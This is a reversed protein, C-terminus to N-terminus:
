PRVVKAGRKKRQRRTQQTLREEGKRLFRKRYEIGLRGSAEVAPNRSTSCQGEEFGAIFAWVMQEDPLVTDSDWLPVRRSLMTIFHDAGPHGSARRNDKLLTAGLPCMCNQGMREATVRQGTLAAWLMGDAVRRALTQFAKDEPWPPATM